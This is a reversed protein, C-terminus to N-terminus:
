QPVTIVNTGTLTIAGSVLGLAGALTRGQVNTFSGLTIVNGAVLTGQFFTSAGNGITANNKMVWFINKAQAGNQLVVSGTTSTLGSGASTSRIIFVADPNGGADLVLPGLTSSLGYTAPSTYIGPSLVYGSLDTAAGFTGGPQNAASAPTTLLTGPAARTYLDNYVANLDTLLQPLAARNAATGNDAATVMGPTVGNSNTVATSTLNPAAGGGDNFGPGTVSAITGGPGPQTLAVDGYIHSPGASNTIANYALLGFPKVTGLNPGANAPGSNVATVTLQAGGAAPFLPSTTTKGGSTYAATINSTGAAVGTATGTTPPPATFTAVAPNASTWVTNPNTTVDTSSGDSLIATATYQQKGGVLISATAPTVNISTVTANTVTLTAPPSSTKNGYTATINTQGAIAGATAKGGGNGSPSLTAIAPNSSAWGTTPDATVDGTTGDSYTAIATYQQAGNVLISATAPTLSISTVTAKSVNLLAVNSTKGGYTATINSSGAFNGTASGGGNGSPSLSAVVNNSSAWNTAPDATVVLTTGNNLNAIATYQQKGNVLISATAPTLSISTVTAAIVNLTAPTADLGNFNAHIFVPAGVLTVTNGIAQGITPATNSISANAASAGGTTWTSTSTRDYFNGDSFTQIAAFQQTGFVPITATTPTVVFSVVTANHVTLKATKAMGGFTATITSTGQNNGATALGTASIAAVNIAPPVDAASWTTGPNATVDRSSGDSYTAIATFQQTGTVPISATPPTVALSVLSPLGSGLIPDRGASGGGCGAALAVLLLAMFWMLPRTVSEFRNM